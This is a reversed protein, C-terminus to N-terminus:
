IGLDKDDRYLNFILDNHIITTDNLEELSRIDLNLSMKLFVFCGPLDSTRCRWKESTHLMTCFFSYGVCGNRGPGLSHSKSLLEPYPGLYQDELCDVELIWQSCVDCLDMETTTTLHTQRQCNVTIYM